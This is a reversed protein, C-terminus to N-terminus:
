DIIIIMSVVSISFYISFNYPFFFKTKTHIRAVRTSKEDPIINYLHM